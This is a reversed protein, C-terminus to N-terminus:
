VGPTDYHAKTWAPPEVRERFLIGANQMATIAERAVKEPMPMRRLAEFVRLLTGENYFEEGDETVGQVLTSTLSLYSPEEVERITKAFSEFGEWTRQWNASTVGATLNIM